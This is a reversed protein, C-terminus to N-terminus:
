FVLPIDKIDIMGDQEKLEEHFSKIKKITSNWRRESPKYKVLKPLIKGEIFYGLYVDKNTARYECELQHLYSEKIKSFDRYFIPAKTEWVVDKFEFDPKVVILIDDTIKLEYKSQEDGCKCPVEMEKFIKAVFDEKMIGNLIGDVNDTIQEVEFFNEVTKYGKMIGFIESAYYRGLKREHKDKNLYKILLEKGNM